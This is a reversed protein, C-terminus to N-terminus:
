SCIESKFLNPASSRLNNYQLKWVRASRVTRLLCFYQLQRNWTLPAGREAHAHRDFTWRSLVVHNKVDHFNSMYCSIHTVWCLHTVVSVEVLVDELVLQTCQYYEKQELWAVLSIANAVVFTCNILIIFKNLNQIKLPFIWTAGTARRLFTITHVAAQVLLPM